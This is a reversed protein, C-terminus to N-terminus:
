APIKPGMEAFRGPTPKKNRTGPDERISSACHGCAQEVDGGVEVCRHRGIELELWEPRAKQQFAHLAALTEGTIGEDTEAVAQLEPEVVIAQLEARLPQGPGRILRLQEIRQSPCKRFRRPRLRLDGTERQEAAEDAHRAIVQHTIELAQGRVREVPEQVSLYCMEQANYRMASYFRHSMEPQMAEEIVRWDGSGRVKAGVRPEIRRAYDEAVARRMDIIAHKRLMSVFGQRAREDHSPRFLEEINPFSM